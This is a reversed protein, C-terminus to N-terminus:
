KNIVIREGYNPVLTKLSPYKVSMYDLFKQPNESNSEFMDWHSPITLGPKIAGALDAAEQYTMNGICNNKLRVADRGNIPLMAIDFDWQKLKSELGEYKVTDGAHYIVFGGTEVIYGLYPYCGTTKDRDLFEHASAVGTIKIGNINELAGDDLGVFRKEPIGLTQALKPLLIKPVVFRANPSANAIGPWAWKDIHDSHNHTGLVLTANTIESPTLLPGIRRNKNPELYADLYIVTGSSKLIFSQQGLWWLAIGPGDFADIDNILTKHQLKIEPM